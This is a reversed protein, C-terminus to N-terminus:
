QSVSAAILALTAVLITMSNHRPVSLRADSRQQNAYPDPYQNVEDESVEEVSFVGELMRANDRVTQIVAACAELAVGDDIDGTCNSMTGAFCRLYPTFNIYGSTGPKLAQTTDIAGIAIDPWTMGDLSSNVSTLILSHVYDVPGDPGTWYASPLTSSINYRFVVRADGDAVIPCMHTQNSASECTTAASVRQVTGTQLYGPKGDWEFVTCNNAQAKAVSAIATLGILSLSLASKMTPQFQFELIFQTHVLAVNVDPCAFM